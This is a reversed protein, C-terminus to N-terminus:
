KEDLFCINWLLNYPFLDDGSCFYEKEKKSSIKPKKRTREKVLRLMSLTLTKKRKGNKWMIKAQSFKKEM